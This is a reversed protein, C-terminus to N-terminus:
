LFLCPAPNPGHAPNWSGVKSSAVTSYFIRLAKIFIEALNGGLYRTFVGEEGDLDLCSDQRMNDTCFSKLSGRINM